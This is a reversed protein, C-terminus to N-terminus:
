FEGNHVEFLNTNLTTAKEIMGAQPSAKQPLM